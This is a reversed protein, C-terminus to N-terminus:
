KFLKLYNLIEQNKQKRENILVSDPTVLEHYLDKLYDIPLPNNLTQKINQKLVKAKESNTPIGLVNHRFIYEYINQDKNEVRDVFDFYKELWSKKNNSEM